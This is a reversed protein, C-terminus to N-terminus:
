IKQYWEELVKEILRKYLKRKNKKVEDLNDIQVAHIKINTSKGRVVILTRRIGSPGTKIKMVRLRAPRRNGKSVEVSLIVVKNVDLGLNLANKELSNLLKLYVKITKEPYRGFPVKGDVNSHHAQKKHYKYYPIAIKHELVMELYKKALSIPLYKIYRGVMEADKRSIRVNRTLITVYKKNEKLMTILKPNM